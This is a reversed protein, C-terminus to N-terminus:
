DIDHDGLKMWLKPYSDGSGAAAAAAAAAGDAVAASAAIVSADDAIADDIDATVSDGGSAVKSGSADTFGWEDTGKAPKDADVEDFGWDDAKVLPHNKPHLKAHKIRNQDPYTEGYLGHLWAFAQHIGFGKETGLHEEKRRGGRREIVAAHNFEHTVPHFLRHLGPGFDRELKHRIHRSHKRAM